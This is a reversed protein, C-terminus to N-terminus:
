ENVDAGQEYIRVLNIFYNMKNAPNFGATWIHVLNIVKEKRKDKLM